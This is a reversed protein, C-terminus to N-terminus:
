AALTLFKDGLDINFQVFDALTLRSERGTLSGPKPGAVPFMVM